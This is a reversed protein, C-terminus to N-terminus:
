GTMYKLIEITILAYHFIFTEGWKYEYNIRVPIMDECKGNLQRNAWLKDIILGVQNITDELLKEPDKGRDEIQISFELRHERTDHDLCVIREEGPFVFINPYGTPKGFRQIYVRKGFEPIAKLTIELESKIAQIDSAYGM